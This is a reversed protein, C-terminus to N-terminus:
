ARGPLRGQFHRRDGHPWSLLPWAGRLESKAFTMDRAPDFRTFIGWLLAEPDNMDVDMSVTAVIKINGPLGLKVLKECIERGGSNVKVVLMCNRLLKWTMIRMDVQDLRPISDFRADWEEM